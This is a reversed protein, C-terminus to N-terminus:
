KANTAESGFGREGPTTKAGRQISVVNEGASLVVGLRAGVKTAAAKEAEKTSRAYVALTIAASGHGQMVSAVKASVGDDLLWTTSTIRLGHFVLHRVGAAELTKSWVTQRFTSIDMVHGGASPFVIGNIGDQAYTGLHHELLPALEDPISLTRTGARTKPPTSQLGKGPLYYKQRVIRLERAELDIDGRELGALEGWRPGLILSTAV